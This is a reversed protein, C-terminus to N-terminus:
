RYHWTAQFGDRRQPDSCMEIMVKDPVQLRGVDQVEGEFCTGTDSSGLDFPLKAGGPRVKMRLRAKSRLLALVDVPEKRKDEWSGGAGARRNWKYCEGNEGTIEELRVYEVSKPKQRPSLPRRPKTPRPTKRRQRKLKVTARQSGKRTSQLRKLHAQPYHKLRLSDEFDAHSIEFVENTPNWSGHQESNQCCQQRNDSESRPDGDPTSELSVEGVTNWWLDSLWIDEDLLVVDLDLRDVIQADLFGCCSQQDLDPASHLTSWCSVPPKRQRGSQNHTLYQDVWSTFDDGVGDKLYVASPPEPPPSPQRCLIVKATEGPTVPPSIAAEEVFTDCSPIQLDM